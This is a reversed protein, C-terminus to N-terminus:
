QVVEKFIFSIATVYRMDSSSHPQGVEINPLAQEM